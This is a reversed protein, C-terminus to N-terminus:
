AVKKKLQRLIMGLLVEFPLIELSVNEGMSIPHDKLYQIHRQAIRELAAPHFNAKPLLCLIKIFRKARRTDKSKLHRYTYNNVAEIRDIFKGRDRALYVLLEAIIININSGEKDEQAKFTENLYKGLRFPNKLELYGLHALFCLYAEIIAFQERIMEFRCKRNALYLEYAIQYQGAHLANLTKYLRLIYDNVSRSTAYAEGEKFDNAALEYNGIAMHAKGRSRLFFLQFSSFVGKKGKFFTLTEECSRIIFDFNGTNFGYLVEIVCKYSKYKLSAGKYQELLGLTEEFDIAKLASSTKAALQFLLHEAKKEAAYDQLYKDVQASYFAAKRPNPHYYIHDHYLISSLECALYVFDYTVAVKYAEKILELGETRDGRKLFKEGITFNKRCFDLKKEVTNVGNSRSVIALAQLIKKTRAKLQYYHSVSHKEGCIKQMFAEESVYNGEQFIRIFAKASGNIHHLLRPEVMSIYSQLSNMIKNNIFEQSDFFM